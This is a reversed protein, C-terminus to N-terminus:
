TVGQAQHSRTQEALGDSVQDFDEMKDWESAASLGGTSQARQTLTCHSAAASMDNAAGRRHVQQLASCLTIPVQGSFKCPSSPAAKWDTCDSQCKGPGNVAFPLGAAECTLVYITLHKIPKAFVNESCVKEIEGGRRSVLSATRCLSYIASPDAISAADALSALQQRRSRHSCMCPQPPGLSSGSCAAATGSVCITQLRHHSLVHM